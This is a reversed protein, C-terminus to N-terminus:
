FAEEFEWRRSYLFRRVGGEFSMQRQNREAAYLFNYGLKYEEDTLDIFFPFGKGIAAYGAEIEKIAAQDLKYRSDLSLTRYAYGGAGPMIQGSLTKRPAATSAWGPEKKVATPVRVAIGAALRGISAIVGYDAKILLRKYKAGKSSKFPLFASLKGEELWLELGVAATECAGGGSIVGEPNFGGAGGGCVAGSFYAAYAGSAEYNARGGYIVGPCEEVSIIIQSAGSARIEKVNALAVCDMRAPERFTIEVAGELEYCDALAPSILSPPADSNQMVDNFIIKM